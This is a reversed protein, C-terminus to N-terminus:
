ANAPGIFLRGGGPVTRLHRAVSEVQGRESTQTVDVGVDVADVVTEVHGTEEGRGVVHRIRLLCPFQLAGVGVVGGTDGKGELQGALAVGAVPGGGRQQASPHPVTYQGLVGVRREVDVFLDGGVTYALAAEDPGQVQIGRHAGVLVDGLRGDLVTEAEHLRGAGVEFRD